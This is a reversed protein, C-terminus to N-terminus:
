RAEIWGPPFSLRRYARVTNTLLALLFPKPPPVHDFFGGHEDYTVVLLTKEWKPGQMLAQVVEGILHQGDAIDAPPGDDDGPPFDIFDPDIFSVSPLTGARANAFFGKM